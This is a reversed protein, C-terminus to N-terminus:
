QRIHMMLAKVNIYVVHIHCINPLNQLHGLAFLNGMDNKTTNLKIQMIKRVNDNSMTFQITVTIDKNNAIPRSKEWEEKESESRYGCPGVAGIPGELSIRKEKPLWFYPDCYNLSVKCKCKNDQIFQKLSLIDESEVIRSSGYKDNVIWEM